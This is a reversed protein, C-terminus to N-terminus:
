SWYRKHMSCAKVLRPPLSTYKQGLKYGLIKMFNNLSARPIQTIRKKTLFKLESIIFRLGEGGAGGFDKRIWAEDAHFVGIDFYRKFEELPSYNHSHRVKAEAVYAVKYGASVAKAAFYMDESLITNSPFGGLKQFASVRYASFSNSMFVAKMGRDAKNALSSTYSEEGYNFHRAHQAIPTADLHPLQRGYACAVEPDHFAAVVEEIFGEEPIADQTLFIAIDYKSANMEVALNRTGGHNFDKSDIGHVTFGQRKATEVSDDKSASDIVFVFLDAPASNRIKEAARAWVTGGNYTPVAVFYNM